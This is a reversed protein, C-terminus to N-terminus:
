ISTLDSVSTLQSMVEAMVDMAESV